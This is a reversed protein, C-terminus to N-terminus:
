ARCSKSCCSALTPSGLYYFCHIFDEGAVQNCNFKISQELRTRNKEGAGVGAADGLFLLGEDMYKKYLLM